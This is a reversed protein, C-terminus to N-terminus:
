RRYYLEKGRMRLTHVNFLRWSSVWQWRAQGLICYFSVSFSDKAFRLSHATCSGFNGDRKRWCISGERIEDISSFHKRRRRDSFPLVMKHRDLEPTLINMSGTDASCGNDLWEGEEVETVVKLANISSKVFNLITEIDIQIIYKLMVSYTTPALISINSTQVFLAFIGPHLISWVM